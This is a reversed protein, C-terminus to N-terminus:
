GGFGEVRIEGSMLKPLLTDRISVLTNAQTTNISIKKSLSLLGDIYKEICRVIEGSCHHVPTKIIYIYGCIYIYLFIFACIYPYISNRESISVKFSETKFLHFRLPNM